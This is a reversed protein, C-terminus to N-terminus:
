RGCWPTRASRWKGSILPWFRVRGELREMSAIGADAMGDPGGVQVDKLTVTLEPFFGFEPEGRMSVERGTWAAIQQGVRATVAERPLLAVVMSFLVVGALAVAGLVWAIRKM